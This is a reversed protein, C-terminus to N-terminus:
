AKNCTTFTSPSVERQYCRLKKKVTETLGVYFIFNVFGQASDGIGQYFLVVFCLLKNFQSRGYAKVEVRVYVDDLHHTFKRKFMCLLM